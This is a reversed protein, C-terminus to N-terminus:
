SSVVPMWAGDRVEHFVCERNAAKAKKTGLRQVPLPAPARPPPVRYRLLWQPYACDQGVVRMVNDERVVYRRSVVCVFLRRIQGFGQWPENLAYGGNSYAANYACWTGFNAGGSRCKTVQFGHALIDAESDPSRCGHFMITM